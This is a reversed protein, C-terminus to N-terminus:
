YELFLAITSANWKFTMEDIMLRKKQLTHIIHKIFSTNLFIYKGFIAIIIFEVFQFKSDVKNQLIELFVYM